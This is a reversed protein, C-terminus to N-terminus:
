ISVKLKAAPTGGPMIPSATLATFLYMNTILYQIRYLIGSMYDKIM